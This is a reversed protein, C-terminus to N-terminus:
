KSVTSYTAQQQRDLETNTRDMQGNITVTYKLLIRQQQIICIIDSSSCDFNKIVSSLIPFKAALSRSMQGSTKKHM